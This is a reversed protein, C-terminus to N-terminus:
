ILNYKKNIIERFKENIEDAKRSNIDFIFYDKPSFSYNRIIKGVVYKKFGQLSIKNNFKKFHIRPRIIEYKPFYINKTAQKIIFLNKNRGPVKDFSLLGRQFFGLSSSAKDMEKNNEEKNKEEEKNNIINFNTTKNKGSFIKQNKYNNFNNKNLTKNLSLSLKSKIKPSIVRSRINLDTFIKNNINNRNYNSNIRKSKYSTLSFSKNENTKNTKNSLGNFKKNQGKGKRTINKYTSNTINKKNSKINLNSILNESNNKFFIKKSTTKPRAIYVDKTRQYILNYKPDYRGPDLTIGNYFKEDLKAINKLKKIKYEQIKKIRKAYEEEENIENYNKMKNLLMRPLYKNDNVRELRTLIKQIDDLILTKNKFNLENRNLDTKTKNIKDQTKIFNIVNLNKSFFYKNFGKNQKSFAFHFPNISKIINFISDKYNTTM